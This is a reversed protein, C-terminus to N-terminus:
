PHAEEHRRVFFRDRPGPAPLVPRIAPSHADHCDMCHNRTRPGRALDWHGTMGGHSGQRYDRFQPGHCQRCLQMGDSIEVARGDALHLQPIPGPLHCAACALEGHQLSLGQHFRSLERMASPFRAAEEATRLSHCTACAVQESAVSAAPSPGVRPGAGATGGPFPSRVALHTLRAPQHVSVDHPAGKAAERVRGRGDPRNCSVVALAISLMAPALSPGSLRARSRMELVFHARSAATPTRSWRNNM